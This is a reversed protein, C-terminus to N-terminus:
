DKWLFPFLIIALTIILADLAALLLVIHYYGEQFVDSFATNSLRM